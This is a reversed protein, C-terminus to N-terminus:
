NLDYRRGRKTIKGNKILNKVARATKSSGLESVRMFDGFSPKKIKSFTHLVKDEKTLSLWKVDKRNLFEPLTYFIFLIPM